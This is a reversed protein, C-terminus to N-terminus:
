QWEAERPKAGQRTLAAAGEAPDTHSGDAPLQLGKQMSQLGTKKITFRNKQEKKAPCPSKECFRCLYSWLLDYQMTINTKCCPLSWQQQLRIALPNNSVWFVEEEWEGIHRPLGRPWSVEECIIIFIIVILFSFDPCLPGPNKTQYTKTIQM